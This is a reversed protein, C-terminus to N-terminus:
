AEVFDVTTELQQIKNAGVNGRKGGGFRYARAVINGNPNDPNAVPIRGRVGDGFDIEGTTRNVRYHPDDEKSALFDPVEQWVEFGQGEDVELRVSIIKALIGGAGRVQVPRQNVVVPADSLRFRQGPEGNSGGLVEDRSTTAATAAVTNTLINQLRPPREYAGRDLRARIWFLPDPVRGIQAKIADTGPGEFLVHGSQTFARTGDRDLDIPEWHGSWYEWVLTAPPPIRNLETDCSQIPRLGANEAVYITLNVQQQTFPIPSDFGLLLASQERAHPGFPFFSQGSAANSATVDSFAFGDFSQAAKLVAGLAVLSEDTEFVLPDGGGSEAAAVQTGAPIVVSDIDDQSLTFTLDATAPTAPELEVGILQLFKIYNLDPVRNLRYLLMETMWAFLQVLTIGPDSQNLNTWEPAYRPILSKAEAVLDAFTRDDLIPAELPM